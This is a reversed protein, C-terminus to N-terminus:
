NGYMEDPPIVQVTEPLDFNIAFTSKSVSSKQEEFGDKAHVYSVVHWEFNGIDLKELNLYDYSNNKLQKSVIKRLTGNQNKQYLTFVYDTADKNKQWEFSIKRNKALYEPGIIFKEAPKKLKVSALPPVDLITFYSENESTLDLGEKTKAVVIWSYKGASLRRQEVYTGPNKVSTVIKTIGNAFHKKLIFEKQVADKNEAWDFKIPSRLATENETWFNKVKEIQKQM